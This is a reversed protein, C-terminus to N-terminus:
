LSSQEDPMFSQNINLPDFGPPNYPTHKREKKKLQMVGPHGSENNASTDQIGVNKASKDFCKWIDFKKSIYEKEFLFKTFLSVIIITAWGILMAFTRFPFLQGDTENYYPYYIFPKIKLLSEGGGFRLIVSIIWGLLAGYSNAFGIFLASIFQPLLMVYVLDTSLFVLGLILEGEVAIGIIMMLLGGIFVGIRYSWLVWREGHEKRWIIRRFISHAFMTGISLSTSDVSSMVALSLSLLGAVMVAENTFYKLTLPLIQKADEPPIPLQNPYGVAEWDASAVQAGIIVVPTACVLCGFAAMVSGWRAIESNKSAFVRQYYLQWTIAGFLLLMILDFYVGGYKADLHGYWIQTTDHLNGMAPHSTVYPVAAWMCVLSIIMLPIDTYAVSFMGGLMTYAMAVCATVVVSLKEGAGITIQFTIGLSSLIAASWFCEATLANLFNLVSMIAGFKDHIPDMMSVYNADRMKKAILLGNVLLALSYGLPLLCWVLGDKFITEPTGNLFDAGVWSSTISLTTVFIGLGRRALLYNNVDVEEGAKSTFRASFLGVVLIVVYVVVVTILGAVEVSM